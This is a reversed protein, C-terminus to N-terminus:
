VRENDLQWVSRGSAFKEERPTESSSNGRGLASGEVGWPKREKMRM